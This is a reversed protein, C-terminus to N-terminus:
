YWDSRSSGMVVSVSRGTLFARLWSLPRGVVGFSTELRELLIGHDVTDFAAAVDFLALLTVHGKDVALFMDALIRTLLSETSHYKRFGFQQAPLLSNEELYMILQMSVYKLCHQCIWNKEISNPSRLCILHYKTGCM